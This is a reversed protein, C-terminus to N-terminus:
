HTILMSSYKSNTYSWKIKDYLKLEENSLSSQFKEDWTIKNANLLTKVKSNYQRSSIRSSNNNLVANDFFDAPMLNVKKSM